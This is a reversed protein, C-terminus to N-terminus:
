ITAVSHAQSTDAGGGGAVLAACDLRDGIADVFRDGLVTRVLQSMATGVVRVYILVLVPVFITLYLLLSTFILQEIVLFHLRGRIVRLKQRAEPNVQELAMTWAAHYNKAAEREDVGRVQLVCSVFDLLGFRHGFRITGNMTRRLMGYAADDFSLEGGRAVDFLDDRLRFIRERFMDVRYDRYLWFFGGWLVALSVVSLLYSTEM